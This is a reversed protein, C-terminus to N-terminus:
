KICSYDVIDRSYHIETLREILIARESSSPFQGYNGREMDETSISEIEDTLNIDVECRYCAETIQNFVM